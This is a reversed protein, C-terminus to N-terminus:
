AKGGMAEGGVEAKLSLTPITMGGLPANTVTESAIKMKPPPPPAPPPPPPKSRSLTKMDPDRKLRVFDITQLAERKELLHRGTHILAHMAGFLLLSFVLAAVAAPLIPPTANGPKLLIANM